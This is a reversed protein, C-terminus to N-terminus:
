EFTIIKSILYIIQQYISHCMQNSYGGTLRPCKRVIIIVPVSDRRAIASVTPTPSSTAPSGAGTILDLSRKSRLFERWSFQVRCLSRSCTGPEADKGLFTDSVCSPDMLFTPVYYKFEPTESFLLRKCKEEQRFSQLLSYHQQAQIEGTSDRLCSNDHIIVSM